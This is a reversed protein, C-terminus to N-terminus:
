TAHLGRTFCSNIVSARGSMRQGSPFIVLRSLLRYCYCRTTYPLPLLLQILRVIIVLFCINLCSSSVTSPLVPLLVMSCPVHLPNNNSFPSLYSSLVHAFSSLPSTQLEGMRQSLLKLLLSMVPVTGYPM